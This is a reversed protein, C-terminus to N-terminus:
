CSSRFFISPDIRCDPSRRKQWRYKEARSMYRYLRLAKGADPLRHRKPTVSSHSLISTRPGNFTHTPNVSRYSPPKWADDLRQLTKQHKPKTSTHKAAPAPHPATTHDGHKRLARPSESTSINMNSFFGEEERKSFPSPTYIVIDRGQRPHKTEAIKHAPPPPSPKHPPSSLTLSFHIQVPHHNQHPAQNQKCSNRPTISVM